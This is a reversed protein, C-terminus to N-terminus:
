VRAGNNIVYREFAADCLRRYKTPEGGRSTVVGGDAYYRNWLWDAIGLYRIRNKEHTDAIAEYRNKM